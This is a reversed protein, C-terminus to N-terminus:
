HYQTFWPNRHPHYRRTHAMPHLMISWSIPHRDTTFRPPISNIHTYGHLVQYYLKVNRSSLVFTHFLRTDTAYMHVLFLGFRFDTNRTNNKRYLSACLLRTSTCQCRCVVRSVAPVGVPLAYQMCKMNLLLTGTRHIGVAYKQSYSVTKKEDDSKM